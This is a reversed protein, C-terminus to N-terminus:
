DEEAIVEELANVLGDIHENTMPSSLMITM